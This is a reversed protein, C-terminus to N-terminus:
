KLSLYLQFLHAASWASLLAIAIYWAFVRLRVLPYVAAMAPVSTVSGALLFAMAAPTSMGMAMLGKILPVAAVGNLYAPVGVLVAIGIAWANAGGVWQAVLSAPVYRVLLSELLFAFFMWKLLLRAVTAFETAFLQRRAPERWFAWRPHLVEGLAVPQVAGVGRLPLALRGSAELALTLFGAALGMFMAALLKATAFELGLVGATLVFMGPSIIPSSIWFAMVASLPMGARLLVAVLPVVACSCLPSWAGFLAAAVIMLVTRGRFVRTIVLGASSARMYASFAFAGLLYPSLGLLTQVSFLVSPGLQPADFALLLAALVASATWAPDRAQLWGRLHHWPGPPLLAAAPTSPLSTSM